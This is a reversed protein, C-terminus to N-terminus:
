ADSHSFYISNIYQNNNMDISVSENKRVPRESSPRMMEAIEVETLSTDRAISPAAGPPAPKEEVKDPGNEAAEGEAKQIRIFNFWHGPNYIATVRTVQLDQLVSFDFKLARRRNNRGAPASASNQRRRVGPVQFEGPQRFSVQYAKDVLVFLPIYQRM